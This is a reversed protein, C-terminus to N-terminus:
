FNGTILPFASTPFLGCNMKEINLIVGHNRNNGDNYLNETACM